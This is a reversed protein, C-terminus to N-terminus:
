TSARLTGTRVARALDDPRRSSLLWYPTPDQPDALDIRVATSVYPRLLLYARADARPGRLERAADADLATAAACLRLPIAARGAQLRDGAVTIRASGWRWLMVAAAAFSMLGAGVAVLIPAALVLVWWVVVGLVVALVWWTAPVRLREDFDSPM